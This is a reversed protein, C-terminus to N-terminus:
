LEVSSTKIGLQYNKTNNLHYCLQLVDIPWHIIDIEKNAPNQFSWKMVTENTRCKQANDSVLKYPQFFCIAEKVVSAILEMWEILTTQLEMTITHKSIINTETLKVPCISSIRLALKALIM